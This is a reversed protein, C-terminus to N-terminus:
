QIQFEKLKDIDVEIGLGPKNPVKLLGDQPQIYPKVLVDRLANETRDLEILPIPNFMRGPLPDLNAIVHM